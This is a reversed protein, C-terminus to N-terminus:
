ESMPLLTVRGSAKLADFEPLAPNQTYIQIEAGPIGLLEQLTGTHVVDRITVANPLFIAIHPM